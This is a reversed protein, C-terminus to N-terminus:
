SISPSGSENSSFGKLATRQLISFSYPCPIAEPFVYPSAGVTRLKDRCATLRSPFSFGSAGRGVNNIHRLADFVENGRPCVTHFTMALYM